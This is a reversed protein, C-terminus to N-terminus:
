LVNLCTSLLNTLTFGEKMKCYSITSTFLFVSTTQMSCLFIHHERHLSVHEKLCFSKLTSFHIIKEFCWVLFTKCKYHSTTFFHPLLLFKEHDFRKDTPLMGERPFVGFSRDPAPSIEAVDVRSADNATLLSRWGGSWAMDMWSMAPMKGLGSAM